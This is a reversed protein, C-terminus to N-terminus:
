PAGEARQAPGTRSTTWVWTVVVSLVLFSLLSLVFVGPLAIREFGWASPSFSEIRLLLPTGGQEPVRFLLHHYPARRESPEGEGLSLFLLRQGDDREAEVVVGWHPRGVAAGNEATSPVGSGLTPGVLASAHQLDTPPLRPLVELRELVELMQAVRWGRGEDRIRRV